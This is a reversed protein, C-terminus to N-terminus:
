DTQLRKQWARRKSWLLILNMGRFVGSGLAQGFQMLAAQASEASASSIAVAKSVTETLSAVQAQSIKLAEANQAFRQYVGSTAQISQNTKLSIDFVSEM